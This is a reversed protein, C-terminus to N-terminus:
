PATSCCLVRLYTCKNINLYAIHFSPPVPQTVSVTKGTLRHTLNPDTDNIWTYTSTGPDGNCEITDVSSTIGAVEMGVIDSSFCVWTDQPCASAAGDWSTNDVSIKIAIDNNIGLAGSDNTGVRGQGWLKGDAVAVNSTNLPIVVVRDAATALSVFISAVVLSSLLSLCHIKYGMLKV